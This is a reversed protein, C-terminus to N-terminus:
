MTPIKVLVPNFSATTTGDGLQGNDNAGWCSVTGEHTIACSSKAGAGAGASLWTFGAAAGNPAVPIPHASTDTSGIGLQGNVNDGWCALAGTTSRACSYNGGISLQTVGTVASAATPTQRDAGSVGLQGDRNLGWCSVTRDVLLACTHEAGLSIEVVGLLGVVMTPAVAGDLTGANGIQGSSNWGWCTVAGEAVIACTHDRGAALATVGAVNPVVVPSSSNAGNMGLQGKDNAGWCRVTGDAALACTHHDGLAISMAPPLNPVAAATMHDATDTGGRGLQSFANYGFCHVSQDALRVCTHGGGLALQAIPRGAFQTNETVPGPDASAVGLQGSDNRGWCFLHDDGRLACAYYDGVAVVRMCSGSMCSAVGFIAAVGGDAASV